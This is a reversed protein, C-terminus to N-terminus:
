FLGGICVIKKFGDYVRIGAAYYYTYDIEGSPTFRMFHLKGESGDYTNVFLSYHRNAMSSDYSGRNLYIAQIPEVSDYFEHYQLDSAYTIAYVKDPTAYFIIKNYTAIEFSIAKDIDPADSLDFFLGPEQWQNITCFVYKGNKELIFRFESLFYERALVNKYGKMDNPDFLAGSVTYCPRPAQEDNFDVVSTWYFKGDEESFFVMDDNGCVQAPIRCIQKQSNGFRRIDIAGSEENERRYLKGDNILIGKVNSWPGFDLYNDINLEVSPDYFLDKGEAVINFNSTEMRFIRNNDSYGHMYDVLTTGKYLKQHFINKIIGDFKYGHNKSYVNRDYKTPVGVGDATFWHCLMANFMSDQIVTFDCTRDDDTDIVLFGKLVNVSVGLSWHVGAIVGTEKHKVRFWLQYYQYAPTAYIDVKWDLDKETSLVIYDGTGNGSSLEVGLRWEYEFDDDTAGEYVIKPHISLISDRVVYLREGGDSVGTTDIIIQPLEEGISISKDDYSCSFIIGLMFIAWSYICNIKKM